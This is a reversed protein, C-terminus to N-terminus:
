PEVTIPIVTVEDFSRSARARSVADPHGGIIWGEDPHEDFRASRESFHTGAEILAPALLLVWTGDKGLFGIEIPRADDVGVEVRLRDGPKVSVDTTLRSQAGSRDRVVALQVKGKFRIAPDTPLPVVGTASPDRGGRVVLLLAAAALLPAAVWAVRAWRREPLSSVKEDLRQVFDVEPRFAEAEKATAAVYARCAECGDLHAAVDDRHDGAVHADLRFISPHDDDSSM